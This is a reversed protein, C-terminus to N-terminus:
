RGGPLFGSRTRPFVHEAVTEFGERDAFYMQQTVHIRGEDIRVVNFSNKERERTRGRRSTATGAQVIVVGHERGLGPYVDLSNGVYARHLHGGLVLDVRLRTFLDLARRGGRMSAGGEYDPPPAFHHHAVVIKIADTDSDGHTPEGFERRCFELQGRRVTGETIAGLPSTTNLAVIVAGSHRLVSDSESGIYQRYLEYPRFLREFVRYLPVDHNGPVVIRPVVPLADLFARADAYQARKARQTFDGSVVVIDPRLAHAAQLVSQGIAPLYHPGFHLDSIHLLTLM